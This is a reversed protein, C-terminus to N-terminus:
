SRLVTGIGKFRSNRRCDGLIRIPVRLSQKNFGPLIVDTFLKGRIPQPERHQKRPRERTKIPILHGMMM